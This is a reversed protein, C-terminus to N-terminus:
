RGHRVSERANRFEDKEHRAKDRIAHVANVPAHVIASAGNGLHGIVGGTFSGISRRHFLPTAQVITSTCLVCLSLFLLQTTNM